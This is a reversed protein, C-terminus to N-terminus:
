NGTNQEYGLSKDEGNVWNNFAEYSREFDQRLNEEFIKLLKDKLLQEEDSLCGM